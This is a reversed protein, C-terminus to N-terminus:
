NSAVIVGVQGTHGICTLEGLAIIGNAHNRIEAMRLRWGGGVEARANAKREVASGRSLILHIYGRGHTRSRKEGRALAWM